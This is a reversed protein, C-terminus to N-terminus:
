QIAQLVDETKGFLKKTGNELVLAHTTIQMINLRHTIIVILKGRHKLENITNTLAMEGAEDLNSNPEDLVILVPDGYIARALAVRQRQGGSLGTGGEGLVTDYGAPLEQIMDHVNARKAALVVQEANVDGFRAINESIKGAFLEVSQPLYGIHPGLLYPDWLAIDGGDLRVNGGSSKCVGVLLRAITSKGSGSMGIIGLVHGAELSFSIDNIVNKVGGLPAGSLSKVQLDGQPRPLTMRMESAPNDTLLNELRSYSVTAASFSKWTAVIQQIPALARGFLISAAIMMGGTIKDEIVLLAGSGLILSQLTVQTFKTMSNMVASNHSAKAQLSLYRNHTMQWRQILNTLMGMAQIVEFNRLNSNALNTAAMSSQGAQSLYGNTVKENIVALIIIITTGILAFVGLYFNFVFIIIIYIPFWPADLLALLGNGTLFSRVLSLDQLGLGGNGGGSRLNQEFSASYVRQSLMQDLKASCKILLFSRVYELSTMAIYAGVMMVTLMILTVENKSPLVRDYIQLMYLSPVLMVLNCVASFCALALFESKLDFISKKLECTKDSKNKSKNIM